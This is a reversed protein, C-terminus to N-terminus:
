IRAMLDKYKTKYYDESSKLEVNEKLISDVVKNWKTECQTLQGKLMTIQEKM